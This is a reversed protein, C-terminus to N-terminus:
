RRLNTELAVTYAGAQKVVEVVKQVEAYKLRHSARIVVKGDLGRERRERMLHELRARLDDTDRLAEEGESGGSFLRLAGGEDVTLIVPAPTSSASAREAPTATVYREPRNKELERLAVEAERAVRYKNWGEYALLCAIIVVGAAIVALLLRLSLGGSNLNKSM